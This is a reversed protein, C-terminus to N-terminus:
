HYRRVFVSNWLVALQIAFLFALFILGEEFEGPRNPQM